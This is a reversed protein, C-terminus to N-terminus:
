KATIHAIERVMGFVKEGSKARGACETRRLEANSDRRGALNRWAAAVEHNKMRDTQM